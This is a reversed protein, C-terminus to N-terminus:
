VQASNSQDTIEMQQARRRLYEFRIDGLAELHINFANARTVDDKYPDFNQANNKFMASLSNNDAGTKVIVRSVAYHKAGHLSKHEPLGLKRKIVLFDQCISRNTALFKGYSCKGEAGGKSMSVFLYDETKGEETEKIRNNTIIYVRLALITEPLLHYIMKEKKKKPITWLIGESLNVDSLRIKRVDNQRMGQVFFLMFLATLRDKKPSDPLGEIYGQIMARERENFGEKKHGSEVKPPTGSIPHILITRKNHLYDLAAKAAYYYANITSAGPNELKKKIKGDKDRQIAGLMPDVWTKEIQKCSLFAIYRDLCDPDICEGNELWDLFYNLQYARTENFKLRKILDERDKLLEIKCAQYMVAQRKATAKLYDEVTFIDGHDRELAEFHKDIKELAYGM